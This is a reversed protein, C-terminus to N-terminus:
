QLTKTPAGPPGLPEAPPTQPMPEIVLDLHQTQGPAVRIHGSVENFLPNWAHLEVDENAPVNEMRYHGRVDTVTHVPHFLVVFDSRGCQAGFVNCGITRLGAHDLHVPTGQQGKLQAVPIVGTLGSIRPVFPYDTENRFQVTDGETADWFMPHMRCHDIVIEHSKSPATPASKFGTASILINTVGRDETMQSPKRDEEGFPACGAIPIDMTTKVPMMSDTFSPLQAGEKLRIFGEVIGTAVVPKAPTAPATTSVTAPQEPQASKKTCSSCGASTLAATAFAFITISTRM